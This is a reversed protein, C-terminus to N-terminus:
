KSNGNQNCISSALIFNLHVHFHFSISSTGRHIYFTLSHQCKTLIPFCNHCFSLMCICQKFFKWTFHTLCLGFALVSIRRSHRSIKTRKQKSLQVITSCLVMVLQNIQFTRINKYMCRINNSNNIIFDTFHIYYLCKKKRTLWFSLVFVNM